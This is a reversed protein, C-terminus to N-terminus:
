GLLLQLTLEVLARVTEVLLALLACSRLQLPETLSLLIYLAFDAPWIVLVHLFLQEAAGDSVLQALLEPVHETAGLLGVCAEVKRTETVDSFLYEQVAFNDM